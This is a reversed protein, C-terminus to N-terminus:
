CPCQKADERALEEMTDRRLGQICEVASISGVSRMKTPLDLTKELASQIFQATWVEARKATTIIYDSGMRQTLSCINDTSKKPWPTKQLIITKHLIMEQITPGVCMLQKKTESGPVTLLLMRPWSARVRQNYRSKHIFLSPAFFQAPSCTSTYM